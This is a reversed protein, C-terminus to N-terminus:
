VLNGNTAIVYFLNGRYLIKESINKELYVYRSSSNKSNQCKKFSTLSSRTLISAYISLCVKGGRVAVSLIVVLSSSRLSLSILVAITWVLSSSVQNPSMAIYISFFYIGFMSLLCVSPEQHGLAHPPHSLM